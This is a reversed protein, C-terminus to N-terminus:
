VCRSVRRVRERASATPRPPIELIDDPPESNSCVVTNRRNRFWFPPSAFTSMAPNHTEGRRERAISRANRRIKGARDRTRAAGVGERFWGWGGRGEEESSGGARL